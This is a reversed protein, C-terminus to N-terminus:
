ENAIVKAKRSLDAYHVPDLESLRTVGFSQLLARAQERKGMASLDAMLGRVQQFSYEEPAPMALTEESAPDPEPQPHDNKQTLPQVIMELSGEKINFIVQANSICVMKTEKLDTGCIHVVDQSAMTENPNTM